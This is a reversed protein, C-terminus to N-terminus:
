LWGSRKLRRYLLTCSVAMIALLLPYGGVWDLEPMYKFNMGYIGALMTPIAMLAAWASIKRVDENQQKGLLALHATLVNTLLENHSDIQQDMRLLDDLVSRFRAETRACLAVRGRVIEQIVSILPDEASRFELVERKLNYIDETVDVSGRTFVRRELAIIDAEVDHSIRDYTDVIEDCVAYLVASSGTMLLKRDAELRRRVATLPNCPGRRVTVAFDPGVFLMIDGLEIACPHSYSASKIVVFLTEGYQEIKPRQHGAAADEVALPHLKLEDQVAQFEAPGPEFLGLWLFGGGEDRVKALADGLDGDVDERNGQRYIACDVIM